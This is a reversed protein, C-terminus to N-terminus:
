LQAYFDYQTCIRAPCEEVDPRARARSAEGRYSCLSSPHESDRGPAVGTDAPASRNRYDMRRDPLMGAM